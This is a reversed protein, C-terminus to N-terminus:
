LKAERSAIFLLPFPPLGFLKKMQHRFEEWASTYGCDAIVCAVQPPLGATNMMMVAAAGMSVGHLVIRSEDGTKGCLLSLWGLLDDRDLLGMGIWRGGSNGHARNDPMFINFGDERYFQAYNAMLGAEAGYGHVLVATRRSPERAALYYGTLPTGDRATVSLRLFSVGEMWLRGGARDERAIEETKPIEQPNYPAKRGIALYFLYTGGAASM